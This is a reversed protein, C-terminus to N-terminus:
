QHQHSKTKSLEIINRHVQAVGDGWMMGTNIRNMFLEVFSPLSNPVDLDGACLFIWVESWSSMAAAEYIMIDHDSQM